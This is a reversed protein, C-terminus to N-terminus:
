SWLAWHCNKFFIRFDFYLILHVRYDLIICWVMWLGNVVWLNNNSPYQCAHHHPYPHDFVLPLFFPFCLSLNIPKFVSFFLFLSLAFIPFLSMGKFAECSDLPTSGGVFWAISAFCSSSWSRSGVWVIIHCGDAVQSCYQRQKVRCTHPPSKLGGRGFFQYQLEM